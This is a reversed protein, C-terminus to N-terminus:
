KRVLSLLYITAIRLLVLTSFVYTASGLLLLWLSKHATVFVFSGCAFGLIALFIVELPHIARQLDRALHKM